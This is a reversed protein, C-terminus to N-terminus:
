IRTGTAHATLRLADYIYFLHAARVKWWLLPHYPDGKGGEMRFWRDVESIKATGDVATTTEATEPVEALMALFSASAEEPATRPPADAAQPIKQKYEHFVHKFLAEARERPEEGM